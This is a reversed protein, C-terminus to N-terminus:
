TGLLRAENAQVHTRLRCIVSRVSGGSAFTALAESMADTKEAVMGYAEFHAAPGGKALKRVRLGVVAQSEISLLMSQLTLEMYYLFM